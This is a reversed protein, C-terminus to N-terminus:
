YYTLLWSDNFYIVTSYGIEKLAVLIKWLIKRYDTLICFIIVIFFFLNHFRSAILFIAVCFFIVPLVDFLVPSVTFNQYKNTEKKDM